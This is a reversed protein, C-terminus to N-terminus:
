LIFYNFHFFLIISVDIISYKEKTINQVSEDYFYKIRLNRHSKEERKGIKHSFEDDNNKLEEIHAFRIKLLLFFM